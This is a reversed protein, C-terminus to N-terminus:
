KRLKGKAPKQLRVGPGGENEDIFEVGAVDRRQIGGLKEGCRCTVCADRDRCWAVNSSLLKTNARYILGSNAAIELIDASGSPRIQPSRGADM